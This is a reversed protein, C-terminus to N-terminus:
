EWDNGDVLLVKRLSDMPLILEAIKPNLSCKAVVLAEQSASLYSRLEFRHLFFFLFVICSILTIGVQLFLFSFSIKKKSFWFKEQKEKSLKSFNYYLCLFFYQFLSIFFLFLDVFLFFLSMNRKKNCTYQNEKALRALKGSFPYRM